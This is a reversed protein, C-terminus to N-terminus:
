SFFLLRVTNTGVPMSPFPFSLVEGLDLSYSFVQVVPLCIPGKTGCPPGKTIMCGAWMAVNAFVFLRMLRRETVMGHSNWGDGDADTPLPLQIFAKVWPRIDRSPLKRDPSFEVHHPGFHLCSAMDQEWEDFGMEDFDLEVGQNGETLQDHVHESSWWGYLQQDSDTSFQKMYELQLYDRAMWEDKLGPIEFNAHREEVRRPSVYSYMLDLDFSSGMQYFSRLMVQSYKLREIVATRGVILFKSVLALRHRATMPPGRSARHEAEELRRTLGELLVYDADGYAPSDFELKIRRCFLISAAWALDELRSSPLKTLLSPRALSQVIRIHPHLAARNMLEVSQGMLSITEFILVDLDKVHVISPARPSVWELLDMCTHALNTGECLRLGLHTGFSVGHSEVKMMTPQLWRLCNRVIFGAGCFKAAAILDSIAQVTEVSRLVVSAEREEREERKEVEFTDGQMWWRLLVLGGVDSTATSLLEIGALFAKATSRLNKQVNDQNTDLFISWPAESVSHWFAVLNAPLMDREPPRRKNMKGM